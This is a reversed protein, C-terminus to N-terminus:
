FVTLNLSCLLSFLREDILVFLTTVDNESLSCVHLLSSVLSLFIFLSKWARAVVVTKQMM